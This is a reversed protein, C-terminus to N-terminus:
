KELNQGRNAILFPEVTSRENELNLESIEQPLNKAGSNMCNSHAADGRMEKKEVLATFTISYMGRNLNIYCGRQIIVGVILWSM